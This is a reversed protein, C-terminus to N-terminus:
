EEYPLKSYPRFFFTFFLTGYIFTLYYYVNRSNFIPNIMVQNSAETDNMVELKPKFSFENSSLENETSKEEQKSEIEKAGANDESNM